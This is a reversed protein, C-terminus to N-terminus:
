VSDSLNYAMSNFTYGVLSLHIREYEVSAMNFGKKSDICM